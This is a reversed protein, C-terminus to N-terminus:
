VPQPANESDWPHIRRTGGARGDRGCRRCATEATRLLVGYTCADRFQVRSLRSEIRQRGLQITGFISAASVGAIDGDCRGGPSLLALHHAAVHIACLEIGRATQAGFPRAQLPAVWIQLGSTKGPPLCVLSLTTRLKGNPRLAMLASPAGLVM